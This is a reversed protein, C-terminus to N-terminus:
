KIEYHFSWHWNTATTVVATFSLVLWNNTTDASITGVNKDFINVGVGMADDAASFDSAVPPNLSISAPGTGAADIDLTIHGSVYKGNRSYFGKLNTGADVNSGAQVGPVWQGSYVVGDGEVYPNVIGAHTPSAREVGVSLGRAIKMVHWATTSTTQDWEGGTGSGDSRLTAFRGFVIDLQKKNGVVPEWGIGVTNTANAGYQWLENYAADLGANNIPVVCSYHSWIGRDKVRILILDNDQIDTDFEIRKRRSQTLATVGIIGAAGDIGKVFSTTDNADASDSNSAYEIEPVTMPLTHMGRWQKIPVEIDFSIVAGNSIVANAVDGNFLQSNSSTTFILENDNGTAWTLVGDYSSGSLDTTPTFLQKFKGYIHQRTDGLGGTSDVELSNPLNIGAAVVGSLTGPVVHGKLKLNPGDQMMIAAYSVVTGLGNFTLTADEWDSSTSGQPAIAAPGIVFDDVYVDLANANTSAVHILVRYSASNSADFYTHFRGRFNAPLESIRPTILAANTVDYIYVKYDGQVYDPAASLSDWLFSVQETQAYRYGRPVPAAFAWGEGQSDAATKSLKLDSTGNLPTTTNRAFTVTPSGGTGDVPVASGDDYASVGDTTAEFDTNEFFNVSGAGSGSGSGIPVLATGNWFYFKKVDTAYYIPWSSLHNTNTIAQLNALTNGPVILRPSTTDNAAATTDLRVRKNEITQVHARTIVEQESGLAGAKFKSALADEYAFSGSTGTREVTFGAGEASADNGGDNLLINHDKVNLNTTDVQTTTGQVQLNGPIVVTSNSQGLTMLNAGLNAGISMNGSAPANMVNSSEWVAIHGAKDQFTQTRNAQAASALTLVVGTAQGSLDKVILKTADAPDEEVWCTRWSGGSYSKLTRETTDVFVSGDGPTGYAAENPYAELNTTSTALTLDTPAGINTGEPHQLKKATGAM